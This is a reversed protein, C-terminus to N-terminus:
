ASASKDARSRSCNESHIRCTFRWSCAISSGSSAAAVSVASSSTLHDLRVRLDDTKRQEDRYRKHQCQDAARHPQMAAARDPGLVGVDLGVDGLDRRLHRPPHHLHQHAIMLRDLGACRQELDIGRREPQREVLGFCLEVVGAGRDLRRAGLPELRPALQGLDFALRIVQRSLRRALLRKGCGARCRDGLEFLRLVRGSDRLIADADDFPAEHAHQRRQDAVGLDLGVLVRQHALLPGLAVAGREIERARRDGRRDAADRDIDLQLRAVLDPGHRREKDHHGLRPGPDLGIHLFGVQGIDLGPLLGPDHEIDVGIHGPGGLNVADARRGPRLEGDQRRLVGRPIPDLHHLAQRDPDAEEGLRALRRQAGPHGRRHRDLDAPLAAKRAEEM